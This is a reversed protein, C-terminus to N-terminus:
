RPVRRTGPVPLATQRVSAVFHVWPAEEASVGAAHVKEQRVELMADAERCRGIARGLRM